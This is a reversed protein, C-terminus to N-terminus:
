IEVKPAPVGLHYGQGYEIGLEDVIKLVKEDCIFEAVLKINKEKAFTQISKVIINSNECTPLNKIFSGDIKITDVPLNDIQGFNSCNIGFDDM